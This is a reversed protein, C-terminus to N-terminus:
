TDVRNRSAEHSFGAPYRAALKALNAAAVEELPMDAWASIRALYWLVDGLEKRLKDRDMAHGHGLWKKLLEAVEGAEGCLGLGSVSAVAKSADTPVALRATGDATKMALTQYENLNM